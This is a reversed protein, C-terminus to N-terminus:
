MSNSLRPAMKKQVGSRRSQEMNQKITARLLLALPQFFVRAKRIYRGLARISRHASTSSSTISTSLLDLRLDVESCHM